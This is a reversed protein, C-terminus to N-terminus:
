GQGTVSGQGEYRVRGAGDVETVSFPYRKGNVTADCSFATGSRQLVEPPCSVTARLHRQALISTRIAREVRGIDLVVLPAPNGFRVRGSASTETVYVPYSGVDFRAACTFTQGAKRPVGAPCSVNAVVHRQRVIARGIARAVSATDLTGTSSGCAALAGAGALAAM